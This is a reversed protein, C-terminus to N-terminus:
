KEGLYKKLAKRELEEFEKLQKDKKTVYYLLFITIFAGIIFQIIEM